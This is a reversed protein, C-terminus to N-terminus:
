EYRENEKYRKMLKKRHAQVVDELTMGYLDALIAVNSLVDGLEEALNERVEKKTMKEEDPHDRGIESARVARSVEGIEEMLFGVRIYPPLDKWGRKEYFRKEWDQVDQLYM